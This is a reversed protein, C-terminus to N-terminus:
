NNQRKSYKTIKTLKQIKTEKISEGLGLEGDNNNGSGFLEQNSNLLFVSLSFNGSFIKSVNKMMLIPKETQELTEYGFGLQGYKNSGIGYANQNSNLLYISNASFIIDQIIRDNTDEILSSINIFEKPNEPNIDKGKAFVNGEITLIAQNNGVVTVKQINEIQIKHPNQNSDNESLYEIAKGNEFLFITSFYDSSIQKIQKENENENENENEFKFQIPKTIEDPENKILKPFQNQGFFIIENM